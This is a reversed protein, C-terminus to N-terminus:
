TEIGLVVFAVVELENGAIMEIVNSYKSGNFSMTWTKVVLTLYSLWEKKNYYLGQNKSVIDVCAVELPM